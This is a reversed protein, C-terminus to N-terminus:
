RSYGFHFDTLLSPSFIYDMGGVLNQNRAQANGAFLLGSLAPGGAKPGYAPPNNQLFGAYSYRSFYTIKDTVNYDVRLNFQNTDFQGSGSAIYNNNPAGAPGFNPLPLLALLNTAPTSTFCSVPIQSNQFPTRGTGDPNGTAPDYIPVRLASFDGNREATTPTTTLLSAGTRRRTGQYDGFAFLKNKKIPGGLSGGFQNWRLPPPGSPESFPNRANMVDNQLFEFLSGHYQNTGTKTSVQIVAGGVQAFEADYNGTTYKFDQV